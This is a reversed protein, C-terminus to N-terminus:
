LRTVQGRDVNDLSSVPRHIMFSLMFLFGDAVLNLFRSLIAVFIAVTTGAVPGITIVIAAERIGLGGPVLIMLFGALWSLAFGSTISVMEEAGMAPVLEQFLIAISLGYVLWFALYGGVTAAAALTTRLSWHRDPNLVLSVYAVGIILVVAIAIGALGAAPMKLWYWLGIAVGSGVFLGIEVLTSLVAIPRRVGQREVLYTRGVYGWISGPIYRPLSSLFYIRFTEYGKVQGGFLRILGWWLAAALGFAILVILFSLGISVLSLSQWHVILDEATAKARLAFFFVVGVLIVVGLVVKLRARRVSQHPRPAALQDREERVASDILAALRDRIRM